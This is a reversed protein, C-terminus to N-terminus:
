KEIIGYKKLLEIRKQAIRVSQAPDVDNQRFLYDWVRQTWAVPLLWKRRRLYPYKGAMSSLPLFVSRLVSGRRRGLRQAAVAELTLTSSHARNIDEVGYLGGSLIDELLPAIDDRYDAFAAPAPFGLYDEGIRFLAASFRDIHLQRCASLVHDM